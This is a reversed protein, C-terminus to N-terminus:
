AFVCVNYVCVSDYVCLCVCVCVCVVRILPPLSCRRKSVCVSKRQLSNTRLGELPVAVCGKDGSLAPLAVGLCFLLSLSKRRDRSRELYPWSDLSTDAVSVGLGEVLPEGPVEWSQKKFPM